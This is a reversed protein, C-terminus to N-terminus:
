KSKRPVKMYLKFYRANVIIGGDVEKVLDTIWPELDVKDARVLDNGVLMWKLNCTSRLHSILGKVALLLDAYQKTQLPDEIKERKRLEKKIEEDGDYMSSFSLQLKDRLWGHLSLKMTFLEEGDIDYFDRTDIQYQNKEVSVVYRIQSRRGRDFDDLYIRAMDQVKFSFADAARDRTRTREEILQSLKM